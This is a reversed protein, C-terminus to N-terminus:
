DGFDDVEAVESCDIVPGGDPWVAPGDGYVEPHLVRLHGLLDLSPIDDHCLHCHGLASAPRACGSCTPAM